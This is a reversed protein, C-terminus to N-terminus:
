IDKTSALLIKIINMMDKFNKNLQDKISILKAKISDIFSNWKKGLYAKSYTSWFFTKYFEISLAM